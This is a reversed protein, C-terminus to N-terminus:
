FFEEPWQFGDTGKRGITGDREMQEKRRGMEKALRRDVKAATAALDKPLPPVPPIYEYRAKRRTSTPTSKPTVSEDHQATKIDQQQPQQGLKKAIGDFHEDGGLGDCHQNEKDDEYGPGPSRGRGHGHGSSTTSRLDGRGQKMRLVPTVSRNRTTSRLPRGALASPSARDVAPSTSPNNEAAPSHRQKQKQEVSGPSDSRANKPLKPKRSPTKIATEEALKPISETEPQGSTPNTSKEQLQQGDTQLIPPCQQQPDSLHEKRAEPDPSKRKRTASRASTSRFESARRWPKPSKHRTKGVCIQTQNESESIQLTNAVPLMAPESEQLLRESPLSPLTGPVFRRQYPREENLSNRLLLEEEGTLERLERKARELKDELNSVRKLLKAQRQMDRRSKQRRVEQGCNDTHQLLSSM